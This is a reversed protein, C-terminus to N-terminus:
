PAFHGAESPGRELPAVMDKLADVLTFLPVKYAQLLQEVFDANLGHIAAPDSSADRLVSLLDRQLGSLHRTWESNKHLEPLLKRWDCYDALEWLLNAAKENSDVVSISELINDRPDGLWERLAGAIVERAPRNEPKEPEIKHIWPRKDPPMEPIWFRKGPTPSAIKPESPLSPLVFEVVEFLSPAAKVISEPELTRQRWAFFVGNPALDRTAKFLRTNTRLSRDRNAARVLMDWSRALLPPGELAVIRTTLSEPHGADPMPAVQEFGAWLAVVDPHHLGLLVELDWLVKYILQWDPAPEALLLHAAYLGLMPDTKGTLMQRMSPTDIYNRGELIGRRVTEGALWDGRGPVFGNGLRDFIVAMGPLDAMLSFRGQGSPVVNIYVQLMWGAATPLPAYVWNTGSQHALAYWGPTIDVTIATYGFVMNRVANEDLDVICTGDRDLIRFGSFSAAYAARDAESTTPEAAAFSTGSPDRVCVMVASGTGSSKTAATGPALLRRVAGEHYARTTCTDTLPIPSEFSPARLSAEFPMANAEVVLIEEREQDGVKVKMLYLGPAASHTLPTPGRKLVRFGSDLLLIEAQPNNTTLKFLRESTSTPM